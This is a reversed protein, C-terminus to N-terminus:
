SQGQYGDMDFFEDIFESKDEDVSQETTLDSVVEVAASELFVTSTDASSIPANIDPEQPTTGGMSLTDLVNTHPTSLWTRKQGDMSDHLIGDERNETSEKVDDEMENTLHDRNERTISVEDMPASRPNQQGEFNRDDVWDRTNSPQKDKLVERSLSRRSSRQRRESKMYDTSSIQNIPSRSFSHFPRKVGRLPRNQPLMKEDQAHGADQFISGTARSPHFSTPVSQANRFRTLSPEDFLTEYVSNIMGNLHPDGIFLDPIDEPINRFDMIADAVGTGITPPTTASDHHQSNNYNLQNLPLPGSIPNEGQPRQSSSSPLKAEQDIADADNNDTQPAFLSEIFNQFDLGPVPIYPFSAIGSRVSQKFAPLQESARTKPDGIVASITSPNSERIEPYDGEVSLVETDTSDNAEDLYTRSQDHDPNLGTSSQKLIQSSSPASDADLLGAAHLRRAPRIRTHYRTSRNRFAPVPIRGGLEGLDPNVLGPTSGRTTNTMIQRVSLGDIVQQTTNCIPKNNSDDPRASLNMNHHGHWAIMSFRTRGRSTRMQLSTQSPRPQEMRM